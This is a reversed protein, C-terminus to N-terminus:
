HYATTKVCNVFTSNNNAPTTWSRHLQTQLIIFWHISLIFTTKPCSKWPDQPNISNLNIPPRKGALAFLYEFDTGAENLVALAFWIFAFWLFMRCFHGEAEQRSTDHVCICDRLCFHIWIGKNKKQLQKIQQIRGWNQSIWASIPSLIWTAWLM